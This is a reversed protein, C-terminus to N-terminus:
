QKGRTNVTTQWRETALDHLKTFVAEGHKMRIEAEMVENWCRVEQIFDNKSVGQPVDSVVEYTVNCRERLLQIYEDHGPPAPLPPYEKLTIYGAAISAAADKTARDCASIGNSVSQGAAKDRQCGAMTILLVCAVSLCVALPMTNM